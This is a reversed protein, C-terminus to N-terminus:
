HSTSRSKSSLASAEERALQREFAELLHALAAHPADAVADLVTDVFRESATRSPDEAKLSGGLAQLFDGIAKPTSRMRMAVADVSARTMVARVRRAESAELPAHRPRKSTALYHDLLVAALWTALGDELAGIMGSPLSTRTLVSRVLRVPQSAAAASAMGPAALIERAERTLEVGHRLAARRVAAGRSLKGLVTDVFPLPLASAMGAAGGYVSLAGGPREASQSAENARGM